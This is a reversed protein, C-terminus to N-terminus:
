PNLPKNEKMFQLAFEIWRKLDAESIVVPKKAKETAPTLAAPTSPAEPSFKSDDTNQALPVPASQPIPALSNWLAYGGTGMGLAGFLVSAAVRFSFAPKNEKPPEVVVVEPIRDEPLPLTEFQSSSPVGTLKARLERVNPRPPKPPAPFMDNLWQIKSATVDRPVALTPGFFNPDNTDKAQQQLEIALPKARPKLRERFNPIRENWKTFLEDDALYIQSQKKDARAAIHLNFAEWFQEDDKPTSKLAKEMMKSYSPLKHPSPNGEPAFRFLLMLARLKVNDKAIGPVENADWTGWPTRVERPVLSVNAQYTNKALSSSEDLLEHITQYLAYYDGWTTYKGGLAEVPMYRQTGVVGTDFASETLDTTEKGIGFDIVKVKLTWPSKLDGIVMINAPKIDRHMIGNEHLKDLAKTLQLLITSQVRKKEFPNLSQYEKSNALKFLNSGPLYEMKIIEWKELYEVAPTGQPYIEHAKKSIVAEKKLRELMGPEDLPFKLVWQNGEKDKVRYAMGMGGEGIKEIEVFTDLYDSIGNPYHTGEGVIKLLKKKEVEWQLAARAEASFADQLMGAKEVCDKLLNQTKPPEPPNSLLRVSALILVLTCLKYVTAAKVKGGLPSFHL